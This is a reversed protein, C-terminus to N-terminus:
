VSTQGDWQHVLIVRCRAMREKAFGEPKMTPVLGGRVPRSPMKGKDFVSLRYQLVKYQLVAKNNASSITEVFFGAPVFTGVPKM